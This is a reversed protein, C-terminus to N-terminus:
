SGRPFLYLPTYQFETYMALVDAAGDSLYGAFQNVGAAVGGVVGSATPDLSLYPDAANNISINTTNFLGQGGASHAPNPQPAAEISYSWAIPLGTQPGLGDFYGWLWQNTVGYAANTPNILEGLLLGGDVPLLFGWNMESTPSGGTSDAYTLAVTMPNQSSDMLAGYNTPPLTVQGYDCVAWNTVLYGSPFITLYTGSYQWLINGGLNALDWSTQAETVVVRGLINGLNGQTQDTLTRVLVHYVGPSANPAFSALMQAITNAAFTSFFGGYATALLTYTSSTFLPNCLPAGLSAVAKRGLGFTMVSNAPWTTLYAGFAVQAPAPMDGVVGSVMLQAPSQPFRLECYPMSTLGTTTQNWVQANEFWVMGNASEGAVTTDTVRLQVDLYAASAGTTLTGSLATWAAQNGNLTAITTQRLFSGSADYELGILRLQANANLGSSKVMASMGLVNTAAYVPMASTNAPAGGTFLRWCADVTGTPPLDIRAAGFSTVPGSPYTNAATQDWGGSCVGTPSTGNTIPQFTWGGPGFLSVANVNSYAGGFVTAAGNSQLEAVGIVSTVNDIAAAQGTTAVQAGVAGNNDTFLTAALYPALVGVTPYQTIQVWYWAGQTLQMSATALLNATGAIRQFLRLTTGAIQCFLQNNSNTSHLYFYVTAGSTYRFRVQWTNIAGWSPSGFSVVSSAALQMANAVTGTVGSHGASYHASIRTSSLATAYVAPEDISGSFYDTISAGSGAGITMATGTYALAGTGTNTGQSVSDVYLTVVGGSGGAYTVAVHHWVGTTLAATSLVNVTWLGAEVKGTTQIAIYAAALSTGAEGISVVEQRVSPNASIKVWAELTWAASGTPMATTSASGVYQSSASAFTVATDTDGSIAGAVGLTPAGHYTGNAGQGSIDYAVTGSAEDLRYYRVPADPGVIDPYGNAPNQTPAAGLVSTYANLTAFTDSFVTVGPGSPAEFGPNVVLNQLTLRDGTLGPYCEFDIQVEGSTKNLIKHPDTPINHTVAVVDAYTLATAGPLAIALRYPPNEIANILTHLRTILTPVDTAFIIKISLKIHRNQYNWRTVTERPTRINGTRAYLKKPQALDYKAVFYNVRDNLDLVTTFTDTLPAYTGVKFTTTSIATIQSQPLTTAPHPV